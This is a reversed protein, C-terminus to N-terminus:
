FKMKDVEVFWERWTTMACWLFLWLALLPFALCLHCDILHVAGLQTCEWVAASSALAEGAGMGVAARFLRAHIALSSSQEQIKSCLWGFARGAIRLLLMDWCMLFAWSNQYPVVLESEVCLPVSCMAVLSKLQSTCLRMFLHIGARYTFCVYGCYVVM